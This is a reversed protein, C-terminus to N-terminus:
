GPRPRGRRPARRGGRAAGPCRRRARRRSPGPAAGRPARTRVAARRPRPLPAASIGVAPAGALSPGPFGPRSRPRCRPRHQSRGNRTGTNEREHGCSRRRWPTARLVMRRRGPGVPSTRARRPRPAGRGRTGVIPTCGRPVVSSGPIATVARGTTGCSTRTTIGDMLADCTRDERGQIRSSSSRPRRTRTTALERDRAVESTSTCRTSVPSFGPNEAEIRRATRSSDSQDHSTMALSSRCTPAASMSASHSVSEPCAGTSPGETTSNSGSGGRLIGSTRATRPM